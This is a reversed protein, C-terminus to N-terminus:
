GLSAGMKERTQESTKEHISTKDFTTEAYIALFM